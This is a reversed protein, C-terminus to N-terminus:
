GEIEKTEEKKGEKNDNNDKVIWLVLIIGIISTVIVILTEYGQIINFLFRMLERYFLGIEKWTKIFFPFFLHAIVIITCAKMFLIKLKAM